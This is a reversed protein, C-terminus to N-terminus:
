SSIGSEMFEHNKRGPNLELIVTKQHIAFDTRMAVVTRCYRLKDDLKESLRIVGERVDADDSYAHVVVSEPEIEVKRIAQHKLFEMRSVPNSINGIDYLFGINRDAAVDLEDALCILAALYPLHILRNGSLELESPYGIEDMLDTKRHGKCVQAIAQM